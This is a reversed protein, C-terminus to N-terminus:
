FLEKIAEGKRIEQTINFFLNALAENKGGTFQYTYDVLATNQKARKIFDMVTRKPIFETLQNGEGDLTITIEILDDPKAFNVTPVEELAHQMFDIWIPLAAVGGYEQPGLSSPKDFGVWSVAALYPHYGAFWADVFEQTTGTKGALDERGLSSARVATGRKVVDKLVSHIRYHTQPSLVVTWEENESEKNAATGFIDKVNTEYQPSVKHFETKYIIEQQANEIREIFHPKILYGGNAFVSYARVMELPTAEGSGLALSLDNPLNKEKFGFRTMDSRTKEIGMTRLLRISIPNRSRYLGVRLPVYGLFTNGVNSPRWIFNGEASSVLPADKFIDAGTWGAGFAHSYIFPKIASGIQRRAQVARNFQTRKFHYGGVLAKVRGDRPDMAIFAGEVLPVQAIRFGAKHEHPAIRVMDGISVIENASSPKKGKRADSIYPAAWNLDEWGLIIKEGKSTIVTINNKHIESVIVPELSNDYSSIKAIKKLADQYAPNNKTFDESSLLSDFRNEAGRWGHRMDYALLGGRVANNAYEQMDKRATTYVKYGSTYLEEKDLNYVQPSEALSLRVTEALYNAEVATSSDYPSATLSEKSASIYEGRSIYGLVTMRSLVWNRREKARQPNSIPNVKSPAKPLAALMAYQALSLESLDKDYYTQAAAAIGYSQFGLFIKNVYLSLIEEKNLRREIKLALLIENLKRIITRDRTLYYNRAVQMTITSGGTQVDSFSIMQLAARALGRYDLGRHEFFRADEASILAQRLRPPIDEFSIPIRKILGIQAILKGESTLIQLPQQYRVDRLEEINPQRLFLIVLFLTLTLGAWLCFYFLSRLTKM